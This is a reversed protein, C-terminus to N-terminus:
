QTKKKSRVFMAAIKQARFLARLLERIESKTRKGAESVVRRIM